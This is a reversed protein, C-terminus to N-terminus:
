TLCSEMGRMLVNLELLKVVLVQKWSQCEGDFEQKSVPDPCRDFPKEYDDEEEDKYWRNEM